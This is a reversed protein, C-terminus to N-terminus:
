PITSAASTMVASHVLGAEPPGTTSRARRLRDAM